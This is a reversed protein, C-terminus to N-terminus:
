RRVDNIWTRGKERRDVCGDPTPVPIPKLGLRPATRSGSWLLGVEVGAASRVVTKCGRYMDQVLRIYKEPM